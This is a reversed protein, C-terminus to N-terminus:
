ELNVYVIRTKGSVGSVVSIQAGGGVPMFMAGAIAGASVETPLGPTDVSNIFNKGPFSATANVGTVVTSTPGTGLGTFVRSTADSASISVIYIRAGTTGATATKTENSAIIEKLPLSMVESILPETVRASTDVNLADEISQETLSSVALKGSANSKVLLNPALDSITVTTVAGTITDQKTNLQGRNVADYDDTGSLLQVIKKYGASGTAGAGMNLDGSMTDGTKKVRDERLTPNPYTGTLDGGAAGTPALETPYAPISTGPTHSHGDDRVTPNPYNGQLGGSAAGTPTATFVMISALVNALRLIQSYDKIGTGTLGFSWALKRVAHTNFSNGDTYVIPDGTRYTTALSLVPVNAGTATGTFADVAYVEGNYYVSGASIIYDLGSGSNLVGYLSTVESDSVGLGKVIQAIAETYGEQMHLFTEARANLMRIGASINSLDITKM